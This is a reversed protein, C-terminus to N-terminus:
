PKGLHNNIKKYGCLYCKGDHVCVVEGCSPCRYKEQQNKLFESVGNAKLERLNEVMSMTYRERYRKDLHALKECPMRACESCSKIQQKTLQKCARKIYCNKGRSLCGICHTVKGSQRQAGHTYALYARCIGCNM